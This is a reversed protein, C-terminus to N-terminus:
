DSRYSMIENVYNVGSNLGGIAWKIPSVKVAFQFREYRAEELQEIPEELNTLIKFRARKVQYLANALYVTASVGQGLQKEFVVDKVLESNLDDMRFPQGPTQGLMPNPQSGLPPVNRDSGISRNYPWYHTM